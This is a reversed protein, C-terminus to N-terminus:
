SYWKPLKNYASILRTVERITDAGSTSDLWSSLSLVAEVLLEDAYAHDKEIDNRELCSEMEIILEDLSRADRRDMMDM